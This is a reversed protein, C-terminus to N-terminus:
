ELVVLKRSCIEVGNAMLTYVYVGQPLRHAYFEVQGEGVTTIPIELQKAGSLNSILISCSGAGDPIHFRIMTKEGVPNPANQDLRFGTDAPLHGKSEDNGSGQTCCAQLKADMVAFQQMLVAMQAELSSIKSKYASNEEDLEQVAKVLPVVFESYRLGYLGGEQEPKDVGSFEYKCAKAAAEVDQAIFGSMTRREIDYKDAADSSDNVGLIANLRDVNLHYTVPRLQSIFDLGPVNEQVDDKIRKDSGTTITTTHCRLQMISGNGLVVENSGLPQSLYGIASSNNYQTGNLFAQNGLATNDNGLTNSHLAKYGLAVVGHGKTTSYATQFGVAANAWGVTNSAMAFSGLAVNRYGGTNTYLSFSGAACNEYGTLNHSLTNSGLATNRFGTTNLNMSFQGFASNSKGTTNSYLSWGGYASNEFGTTNHSLTNWGVATNYNGTTNLNLSYKGFGTNGSGTTNSNLAWAGGATNESGTTNNSLTGWGLGTNYSATTNSSLAYEGVAVNGIGTQNLHLALRGMGTNSGASPAVNSLVGAGFGTNSCNANANGAKYGFFTRGCSDITGAWQNFVRFDLPYSNLTGLFDAHNAGVTNGSFYWSQQGYGVSAFLLPLLAILVKICNRNM